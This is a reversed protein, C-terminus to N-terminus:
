THAHSQTLQGHQPVLCASPQTGIDGEWWPTQSCWRETPRELCKLQLCLAPTPLLSSYYPAQPVWGREQKRMQWPGCLQHPTQGM